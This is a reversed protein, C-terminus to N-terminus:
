RLHTNVVDAIYHTLLHLACLDKLCLLLKYHALLFPRLFVVIMSHVGTIGMDSYSSDDTADGSSKTGDERGCENLFAQM